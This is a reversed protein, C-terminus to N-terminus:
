NKQGKKNHPPTPSLLIISPDPLSAGSTDGSKNVSRLECAEFEKKDVEKNSSTEHCTAGSKGVNVTFFFFIILM